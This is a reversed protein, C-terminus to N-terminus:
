QLRRKRIVEVINKNQFITEVETNKRRWEGSIDM